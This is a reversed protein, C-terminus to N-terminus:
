VLVIDACDDRAGDGPAVGDVLLVVMM